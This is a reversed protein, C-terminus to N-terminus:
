IKDRRLTLTAREFAEAGIRGHVNDPKPQGEHAAAAAALYRSAIEVSRAADDRGCSENKLLAEQRGDGTTAPGAELWLSEPLIGYHSGDVAAGDLAVSRVSILYPVASRWWIPLPNGRPGAPPGSRPPDHDNICNASCDLRRRGPRKRLHPVRVEMPRMELVDPRDKRGPVPLSYLAGNRWKQSPQTM